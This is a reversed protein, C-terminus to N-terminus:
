KGGYVIKWQGDPSISERYINDVRLITNGGLTLYALDRIIRLPLDPVKMIIKYIGPKEVNLCGLHTLTLRYQDLTWHSFHKVDKMIDKRTIISGIEKYDVFLSWTSKEKSMSIGM